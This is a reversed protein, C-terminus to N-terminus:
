TLVVIRTFGRFPPLKVENFIKKEKFEQLQPVAQELHFRAKDSPGSMNNRINRKPKPFEIKNKICKTKSGGQGGKVTWIPTAGAKCL